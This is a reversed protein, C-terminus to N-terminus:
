NAAGPAQSRLAGTGANGYPVFLVTISRESIYALGGSVERAQLSVTHTGAPVAIAGSVQGSQDDTGGETARVNTETTAAAGNVAGRINLITADPDTIDRNVNVQATIVFIGATPATVSRSVLDTFTAADFNDIEAVATATTARALQNADLGDVKDANVGTLTNEAIDAGTLSNDRVDGGKVSNNKIDKSAISNNKIQKGTIQGAADVVTPNTALLFAVAVAMGGLAFKTRM